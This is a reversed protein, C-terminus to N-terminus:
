ESKDDPKRLGLREFLKAVEGTTDGILHAIDHPTKGRSAARGLFDRLSPTRSRERILILTGGAESIADRLGNRPDVAAIVVDSVGGAVAQACSEPKSCIVEPALDNAHAYDLILRKQKDEDAGPHIYVIAPTAM